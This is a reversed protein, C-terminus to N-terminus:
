ERHATPASAAHRVRRPRTRTSTPADGLFMVFADGASEDCGEALISPLTDQGRQFFCEVQSPHLAYRSVVLSALRGDFTTEQTGFQPKGGLYIPQGPDAPSQQLGVLGVSLSGPHPYAVNGRQATGQASVFGFDTDPVLMGNSVTRLQQPGVVLVIQVWLARIDTFRGAAHLPYDFSAWTGDGNGTGIDVLNFRIVTGEVSSEDFQPRGGGNQECLLQINLNPNSRDTMDIRGSADRPSHSYLVEALQADCSQKTM